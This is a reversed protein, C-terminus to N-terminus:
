DYPNRAKKKYEATVEEDDEYFPLHLLDRDRLFLVSQTFTDVYDDHAAVGPGFKHLQSVFPRAWTVPQGPEKTSELVYFSGMEYAPMSAEARAYKDARGPNYHQAPINAARLDQILSIGSGKEEVLVADARRPHSTPDKPRGGYKAGWDVLVRKRLAPYNLRKDWADLLLVCPKGNRTAVGWVTCATPDSSTKETFATDYSQLVYIFDPLPDKVPWLKLHESKFMGGGRPVPSQQLQGATAYEGLTTKLTAVTAASFREPFLLEGDKKRPDTFGISTVCRRKPEFEMPLMLHVYGLNKELIIGSTDREAVRQMIVVIASSDNNVRTPLAETFTLEASKLETESNAQDVSLPDDLLVRDGRSGTMGTFAMAERFGTDSNEFKTKANQDGTLVLEPWRARYWASQILRRCKLNDRIALDQRHATGLYRMGRLGPRTWEWAPWLVGTLLSKMCGPPVNMLLRTIHGATVAELHDCIADLAWGWRLKTQPELVPWAAKAFDAFRESLLSAEIRLALSSLDLKEATRPLLIVGHV